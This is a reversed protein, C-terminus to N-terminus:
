MFKTANLLREDAVHGFFQRVTTADADDLHSQVINRIAAQSGSVPLADIRSDKGLMMLRAENVCDACENESVIGDRYILRAAGSALGAAHITAHTAGSRMDAFNLIDYQADGHASVAM